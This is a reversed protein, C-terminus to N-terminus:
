EEEKLRTTRFLGIKSWKEEWPKKETLVGKKMCIVPVSIYLVGLKKWFFHNCWSTFCCFSQAVVFYSLYINIYIFTSYFWQTQQLLFLRQLNQLLIRGLYMTSIIYTYTDLNENIFSKSYIDCKSLQCLEPFHRLILYAQTWIDFIRTFHCRFCDSTRTEKRQSGADSYM